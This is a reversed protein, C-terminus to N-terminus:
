IVDVRTRGEAVVWWDVVVLDAVIVIVIMVVVEYTVVSVVVLVLWWDGSGVLGSKEHAGLLGQDSTVTAPALTM